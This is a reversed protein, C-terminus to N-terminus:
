VSLSQAHPLSLLLDLLCKQAGIIACAAFFTWHGPSVHLCIMEISQKLAFKSTAPSHSVFDQSGGGGNGGQAFM